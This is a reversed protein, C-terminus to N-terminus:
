FHFGIGGSTTLPFLGSGNNGGLHGVMGISTFNIALNASVAPSFYVDVGLGANAGFGFATSGDSRSGETLLFLGLGVMMYPDIRSSSELVYYKLDFKPLPLLLLSNDGANPGAGDQMSIGFTFQTSFHPAFRYDFYVFGGV